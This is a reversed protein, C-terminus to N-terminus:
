LRPELSSNSDINTYERECLHCRTHKENRDGPAVNIYIREDSYRSEEPGYENALYRLFAAFAQAETNEDLDKGFVVRDGDPATLIIGNKVHEVRFQPVQKQVKKVVKKTTKKVVKKTANKGM